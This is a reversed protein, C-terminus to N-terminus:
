AARATVCQQGQSGSVTKMPVALLQAKVTFIFYLYVFLFASLCASLSATADIKSM